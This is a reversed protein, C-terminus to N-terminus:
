RSVGCSVQRLPVGTTGAWRDASEPEVLRHHLTPERGLRLTLSVRGSHLPPRRGDWPAAKTHTVQPQEGALVLAYPLSRHALWAIHSLRATDAFGIGPPGTIDLGHAWHEALRTTALTAPKLPADVWQLFRKPDAARLATVAALRAERWRQFVPAPATREAQVLQDMVQDLTPRSVTRTGPSVGAVSAAVAEETQALHLVVDVVTWGPAGVSVGV